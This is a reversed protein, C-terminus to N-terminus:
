AADDDDAPQWGYIKWHGNADKRLLFVQNMAGLQTGKRITYVCYLRAWEFGDESFYDVDTSSSTAYSSITIEQTKFNGIDSRLTRLYQEETENAILEDDYIEQIKHALEVLEEDTYEENYFCKTIDSFLKVVEKPSPPYNRELNMSILGGVVTEKAEPEAQVPHRTLTYYAGIIVLMALIIFISGQTWKSRKM